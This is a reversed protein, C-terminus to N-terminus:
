QVRRHSVSFRSRYAGPTLGTISKFVRSFASVDQYGVSWAIQATSDGSRELAGRAKEVRLNQVYTAPSYGTAADFRRLFTRQSLGSINALEANLLQDSFRTEIHRQVKLVPADGHVRNPRFGSYHRQERGAPDILLHRALRTVMDPGFWYRTLFLGLDLWAMLGGATIVNHDDVLIHDTQLDVKPFATRFQTELAWHTTAQRHDLVGSHGLWFAGACVSCTLAGQQHRSRTWDIFPSNATAPTGEISPPFIFADLPRDDLKDQDLIHVDVECSQAPNPSLRSLLHFLDSLGYIASQQAGPTNLIAIQIAPNPMIQMNITM